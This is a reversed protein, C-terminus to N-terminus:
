GSSAPLYSLKNIIVLRKTANVGFSVVVERVAGIRVQLNLNPLRFRPEGFELPDLRLREDIIELAQRINQNGKETLKAQDLSRLFADRCSQPCSVRTNM